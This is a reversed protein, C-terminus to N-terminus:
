DMNCAVLAESYDCDNEEAYIAAADGPRDISGIYRWATCRKAEHGDSKCAQCFAQEHGNPHTGVWTAPKGCEHNFTGPEANTCRQKDTQNM